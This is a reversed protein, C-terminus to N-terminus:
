DTPDTPILGLEMAVCLPRRCAFRLQSFHEELRVVAEQATVLFVLGCQQCGRLVFSNLSLQSDQPLEGDSTQLDSRRRWFFHLGARYVGGYGSALRHSVLDLDDAPHNASIGRGHRHFQDAGSARELADRHLKLSRVDGGRM